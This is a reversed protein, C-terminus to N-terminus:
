SALGIQRGYDTGAYIDSRKKTYPVVCNKCLLQYIGDKKVLYFATAAPFEAWPKECAQCGKPPHGGLFDLAAQHWDLCYDCIVQRSTLTHVRYAPHQKSCFNCRTLLFGTTVYPM